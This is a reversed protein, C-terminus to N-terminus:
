GREFQRLLASFGSLQNLSLRPVPVPLAHSRRVFAVIASAVVWLWVPPRPEGPASCACMGSSPPPPAGPPPAPPVATASPAATPKAPPPTVALVMLKEGEKLSPIALDEKWNDPEGVGTGFKPAHLVRLSLEGDMGAKTLLAKLQKPASAAEFTSVSAVLTGPASHAYRLFKAGPAAAVEFGRAVADDFAADELKRDTILYLRVPFIGQHSSLKLPYVAQPTKFSIRLPPLGGKTALSKQGEQPDIRIALFPWGRDVYYTLQAADIAPIKNDKMWDQLAKVGDQGVAMIPQIEYPGAQAAELMRMPARTASAPTDRGRLGKLPPPKPLHRRLQAWTSLEDFLEASTTEYADPKSPVPVIWALADLPKDSQYDVALVLEQQGDRHILLGQQGHQTLAVSTAEASARGAHLCAHAPGAILVCATAVILLLLVRM